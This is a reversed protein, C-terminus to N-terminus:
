VSCITPLTLHTYSVAGSTDVVVGNLGKNINKDTGTVNSSKTSQARPTTFNTRGRDFPANSVKIPKTM